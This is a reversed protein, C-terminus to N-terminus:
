ENKVVVFTKIPKYHNVKWQETPLELIFGDKKMKELARRVASTSIGYKKQMAFFVETTTFVDGAKMKEKIYKKVRLYNKERLTM